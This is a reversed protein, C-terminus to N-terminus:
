LKIGKRPIQVSGEIDSLTLFQARRVSCLARRFRIM